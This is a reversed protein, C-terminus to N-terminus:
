FQCWIVFQFFITQLLESVSASFLWALLPNGTMPRAGLTTTRALGVTRWHIIMLRWHIIMFRWYADLTFKTRPLVFRFWSDDVFM